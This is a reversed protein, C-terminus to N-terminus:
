RRDLWTYVLGLAALLLLFIVLTGLVAATADFGRFILGAVTGGAVTLGVLWAWVKDTDNM